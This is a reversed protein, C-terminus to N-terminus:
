VTVGVDPAAPAQTPFVKVTVTVTLGIGDIVGVGFLGVLQVAELPDITNDPRAGLVVYLIWYVLFLPVGVVALIVDLAVPTIVMPPSEDPVYPSMIAVDKLQAEFTTPGNVKTLGDAGAVGIADLLLGNHEPVV